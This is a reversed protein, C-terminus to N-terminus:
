SKDLPSLWKHKLMKSITYDVSEEAFIEKLSKGPWSNIERQINSRTIPQQREKLDEVVKLVTTWRELGNTGFAKLDEVLQTIQATSEGLVMAAHSLAKEFASSAVLCSKEWRLWNMKVAAFIAKQKLEHSWPGAVKRHFKSNVPLHLHHKTVFIHKQIFFETTPRQLKEMEQLLLCIVAADNKYPTTSGVKQFPSTLLHHVVASTLKDSDAKTQNLKVELEACLKMLKDVKALIRTQENLPPLPTLIRAIQPQSISAQGCTQKASSEFVTRVERTQLLINAYLPLVTKEMFRVRINKSEFVLPETTNGVIGAKGVLERSNVRNVLLDNPMLAYQQLERQDLIMRKLNSLNLWGPTKTWIKKRLLSRCIKTRLWEAM